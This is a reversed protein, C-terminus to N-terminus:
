KIPAGFIRWGVLTFLMFIFANNVLFPMSTASIPWSIYISFVFFLIMLVWFLVDKHM